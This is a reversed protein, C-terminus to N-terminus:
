DSLQESSRKKPKEQVFDESNRAVPSSIQRFVAYGPSVAKTKWSTCGVFQHLKGPDRAPTRAGASAGPTGGGSLESMVHQSCFFRLFCRFNTWSSVGIAAVFQSMLLVQLCNSNEVCRGDRGQVGDCCSGSVMVVHSAM